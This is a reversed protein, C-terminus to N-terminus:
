DEIVSLTKRAYVRDKEKEDESLESYNVQLKEWRALKDKIKSVILKEDEGLDDEFKDLINLLSYIEKSISSSWECWQEHELDSLIELIDEDM